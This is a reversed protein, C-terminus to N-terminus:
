YYQNSVNMRTVRPQSNDRKLKPGKVQKPGKVKNKIHKTMRELEETIYKVAANHRTSDPIIHAPDQGASLYYKKLTDQNQTNKYYDGHWKEISLCLEQSKIEMKIGTLEEYTKQWLFGKSHEAYWQVYWQNTQPESGHSGKGWQRYDTNSADAPTISKNKAQVKKVDILQWYECAKEHLEEEIYALVKPNGSYAAAVLPYLETTDVETLLAGAQHLKKVADLDGELIRKIFYDHANSIKNLNNFFNLPNKAQSLNSNEILQQQRENKSSL